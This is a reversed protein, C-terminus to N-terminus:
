VAHFFVSLLSLFFPIGGECRGDLGELFKAIEFANENHREVRLHLTKISRLIRYAQQPDM